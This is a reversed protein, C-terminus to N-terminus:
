LLDWRKLGVVLKMDLWIYFYGKGSSGCHIGLNHLNLQRKYYVISTPLRPLCHTKELDFTLSELSDETKARASDTKVQDRLKYAHDLHAKHENKLQEIEATDTASSISAKFCDCRLCTDKKQTVLDVLKHGRSNQLLM